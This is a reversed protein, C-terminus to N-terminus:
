RCKFLILLVRARPYYITTGENPITNLKLISLVKDRLNSHYSTLCSNAIILNIKNYNLKETILSYMPNMRFLVPFQLLKIKQLLDKPKM